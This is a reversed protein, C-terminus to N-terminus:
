SEPTLRSRTIGMRGMRSMPPPRRSMNMDNGKVRKLAEQLANETGMIDIGAATTGYRICVHYDISRHLINILAPDVDAVDSGSMLEAPKAKYMIRYIRKASPSPWFHYKHHAVSWGWVANSSGQWITRMEELEDYSVPHSGWLWSKNPLVKHFQYWDAPLDYTSKQIQWDTLTSDTADVWESELTVQTDSDRSAIRYLSSQITIFTGDDVWAPVTASAWTLINSGETATMTTTADTYTPQVTLEYTRRYWQSDTIMAVENMAENVIDRIVSDSHGGTRDACQKRTYAWLVSATLQSSSTATLQVDTGPGTASTGSVSITFTNQAYGGNQVYGTVSESLFVPGWLGGADTVVQAVQVGSGNALIVTAGQLPLLTSSDVIRGDSATATFVASIPVFSSAARVLVVDEWNETTAAPDTVTLSYDGANQIFSNGGIDVAYTGANNVADVETVTVNANSVNGDADAVEVTFSTKGTVPTGSGDLYNFYTTYAVGATVNYTAMNEGCIRLYIYELVIAGDCM